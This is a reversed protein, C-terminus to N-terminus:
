EIELYKKGAKKLDDFPRLFVEPTKDKAQSLNTSYSKFDDGLMEAIADMLQQKNTLPMHNGDTFWKLDYMASFVKIVDLKKRSAIRIKPTPTDSRVITENKHSTALVATWREIELRCMDEFKPYLKSTYVYQDAVDLAWSNKIDFVKQWQLFDYLRQQVLELKRDSTLEPKDIEAKLNKFIFLPNPTESDTKENEEITTNTIRKLYDRIYEIDWADSQDAIRNIFNFHENLAKHLKLLFEVEFDTTIINDIIVPDPKTWRILERFTTKLYSCIVEFDDYNYYNERLEDEFEQYKNEFADLSFKQKMIKLRVSQMATSVVNMHLFAEYAETLFKKYALAKKKEM